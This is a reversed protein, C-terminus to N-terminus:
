WWDQGMAETVRIDFRKIHDERTVLVRAPRLIRQVVLDEAGTEFLTSALGRGFAHRGRSESKVAGFATPLHYRGKCRLSRPLPQHIRLFSIADPPRILSERQNDRCRRDGLNQRKSAWLSWKLTEVADAM